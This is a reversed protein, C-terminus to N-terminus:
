DETVVKLLAALASLYDSSANDTAADTRGFYIPGLDTNFGWNRYKLQWDAVYLKRLLYKETTGDITLALADGDESAVITMSEDHEAASEVIRRVDYPDTVREVQTLCIGEFAGVSVATVSGVTITVPSMVFAGLTGVVGGTGAMIGVTGAASSGAATSGLMTLGSGAHVLTYYGASQMGIGALAGSGSVTTGVAAAAKGILSSPKYDCLDARSTTAVAAFSASVFVLATFYKM